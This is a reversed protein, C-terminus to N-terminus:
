LDVIGTIILFDSLLTRCHSVLISDGLILQITVLCGQIAKNTASLSQYYIQSGVGGTRFAQFAVNVTVAVHQTYTLVCCHEFACKCNSVITAVIFMAM